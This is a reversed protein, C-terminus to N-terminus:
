QKNRFSSVYQLLTDVTEEIGIRSSNVCIDYGRSDGWKLDSYYNHYAKRRRDIEKVIDGAEKESVKDTTMIRAVKADKDGRIFVRVTNPNDKLVWDSCRGVAVFSEGADARKRLLNFEQEQVNEEPSNSYEGIRRYFFVNVPKEDMKQVLEKDYGSDRVTEEVIEKDYLKIGLREALMSAIYHGGSGHERGITVIIQEKM